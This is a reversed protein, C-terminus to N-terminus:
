GKMCKTIIEEAFTLKIKLLKNEAKLKELESDNTKNKIGLANKHMTKIKASDIYQSNMSYVIRIDDKPNNQANYFNILPTIPNYRDKLVIGNYIIKTACQMNLYGSSNLKIFKDEPFYMVVYNKDYEESSERYQSNIIDLPSKGCTYNHLLKEKYIKLIFDQESQKLTNLHCIVYPCFPKMKNKDGKINVHKYVVCIAENFQGKNMKSEDDFFMKVEYM